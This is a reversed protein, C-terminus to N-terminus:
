VAGLAREIDALLDAEGELGASLRVLADDIGLADREEPKL